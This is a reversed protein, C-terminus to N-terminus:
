RLNWRKILDPQAFLIEEKQSLINAIEIAMKASSAKLLYLRNSYKKVIKLNYKKIYKELSNKDKVKVIVRNPILIDKGEIDKFRLMDKDRLEFNNDLPILKIKKKNKIYYFEEAFLSFTLILFLVARKM